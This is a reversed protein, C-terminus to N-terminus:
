SSILVNLGRRMVMHIRCVQELMELLEPEQNIKDKPVVLSDVLFDTADLRSAHKFVYKYMSMGLPTEREEQDAVVRRSIGSQGDAGLIVDFEFKEGSVLVVTPREDPEIKISAVEANCQIVAGHDVAADYM